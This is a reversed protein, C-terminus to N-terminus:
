AEGNMFTDAGSNGANLDIADMLFDLDGPTSEDVVRATRAVCLNWTLLYIQQKAPTGNKHTGITTEHTSVIGELESGANSGGNFHAMTCRVRDGSRSVISFQKSAMLVDPSASQEGKLFNFNAQLNDRLELETVFDRQRRVLVAHVSSAM